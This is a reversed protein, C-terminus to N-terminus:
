ANSNTDSHFGKSWVHNWIKGYMWTTLMFNYGFGLPNIIYQIYLLGKKWIFATKQDLIEKLCWYQSWCFKKLNTDEFTFLILLSEKSLNM